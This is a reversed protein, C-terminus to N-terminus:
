PAILVGKIQVQVEELKSFAVSPQVLIEQFMGENEMSINVVVGIKINEPFIRSMGSTIIVDGVHVKITKAIYLFKLQNSGDWAIIGLERNRQIGASVRINADLLIQCISYDDDASIIKGVLGDATLVAASKQIGMEKGANLLLGSVIDHPNHGIIEATTLKLQTKERFGLLKRLRLNELLADQLQMNEYALNANQQRLTTNEESLNFYSEIQYITKGIYGISSLAINRFSAGSANDTTIMLLFSLLICIILVIADRIEIIYNLIKIM